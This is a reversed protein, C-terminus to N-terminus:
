RRNKRKRWLRDGRRPLFAIRQKRWLRDGRVGQVKPACPYLPVEISVGYGKCTGRLPVPACPYHTCAVVLPLINIRDGSYIQHLRFPYTRRWLRLPIAVAVFRLNVSLPSRRQIAKPLLFACAFLFLFNFQSNLQM